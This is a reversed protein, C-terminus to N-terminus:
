PGVPDAEDDGLSPILEVAQEQLNNIAAVAVPFTEYVHDGLPEQLANAVLKPLAERAELVVVRGDGVVQIANQVIPAVTKGGNKWVELVHM